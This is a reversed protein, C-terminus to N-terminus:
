WWRPPKWNSSGAPAMPPKGDFREALARGRAEPTVCELREEFAGDPAFYLVNQWDSSPAPSGIGFLVRCGTAAELEIALSRERENPDLGKIELWLRQQTLWFDPLYWGSPLAFGEAEYEFPVRSLTLAVAWRAETRSRYVRDRWRTEIPQM